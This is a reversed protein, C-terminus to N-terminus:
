TIKLLKIFGDEKCSKIWRIRKRLSAFQDLHVPCFCLFHVYITQLKLNSKNWDTMPRLSFDILFISPKPSAKNDFSWITAFDEIRSISSITFNELLKSLDKPRKIKWNKRDSCIEWAIYHRGRVIVRFLCYNHMLLKFALFCHSHM